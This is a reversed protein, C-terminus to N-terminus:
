TTTITLPAGTYTAEADYGNNDAIPHGAHRFRGASHRGGGIEIPVTAWALLPSLPM